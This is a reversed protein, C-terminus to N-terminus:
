KILLFCDIKSGIKNEILYLDMPHADARIRYDIGVLDIYGGPQIGIIRFYIDSGYSKRTVIDGIRLM